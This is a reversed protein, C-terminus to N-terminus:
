ADDQTDVCPPLANYRGPPTERYALHDWLQQVRDDEALAPPTNWSTDQTM